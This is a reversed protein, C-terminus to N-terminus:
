KIYLINSIERGPKRILNGKYMLGSSAGGDLNMAEYCGLSKMIKALKPITSNTVILILDGDKTYGIASRAQATQTIKTETFKEKQFNINTKGDLLLAPGAGVAYDLDNWFEKNEKNEPSFEVTYDSPYDKKFRDYVAEPKEQSFEGFINVVYGDEPIKVSQDKKIDIIEGDNVIYNTGKSVHTEKGRAPTYIATNFGNGVLSHNIWYGNWSYKWDPDGNDGKIFTDLRDIDFKKNSVGFVARDNGNHVVKGDVVLIGYPDKLSNETYASFYSGNIAILADNEKAINSLADTKGITDKALATKVELNSEKPIRVGKVTINDIIKNITEIDKNKSKENLLVARKQNNWGVTYNLSEMVVRIPLYTRGDKIIAKSDNLIKKDNKLIYSKNIPIKLNIGNKTVIAQNNKEDWEVNADISEVTKRLPVLTRQNQIFPYGYELNFDVNEGNLLVKIETNGFSPFIFIIFVLSLILLRKLYKM